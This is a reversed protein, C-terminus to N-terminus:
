FEHLFCTSDVLPYEFLTHRMQQAFSHTFGIQGRLKIMGHDNFPVLANGAKGHVVTLHYNGLQAKADICQDGGIEVTRGTIHSQICSDWCQAISFSFQSFAIQNKNIHSQPNITIM